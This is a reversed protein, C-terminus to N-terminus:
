QLYVPCLKKLLISRPVFIILLFVTFFLKLNYTSLHDCATEWNYSERIKQAFGPYKPARCINRLVPLFVAISNLTIRKCRKIALSLGSLLRQQEAFCKKWMWLKEERQTHTPPPILACGYPLSSFGSCNRLSSHQPLSSVAFPTPFSPPPPLGGTVSLPLSASNGRPGSSVFGMVRASALQLPAKLLKDICVGSHKKEYKM